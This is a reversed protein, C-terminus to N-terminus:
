WTDLEVMVDGGALMQFQKRAALGASFGLLGMAVDLFRIDSDKESEIDNQYVYQQQNIEKMEEEEEEEEESETMDDDIYKEDISFMHIINDSSFTLRRQRKPSVCTVDIAFSNNLQSLRDQVSQSSRNSITNMWTQEDCVDRSALRM